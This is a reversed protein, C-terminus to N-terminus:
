YDEDEYGDLGCGFKLQLKMSTKNYQIELTKINATSSYLKKSKQFGGHGGGFGRGFFGLSGGGAGGQSWVNCEVTEIVNKAGVFQKIEEFSDMTRITVASTPKNDKTPQILKGAAAFMTRFSDPVLTDEVIVDTLGCYRHFHVAKSKGAVNEKSQLADQKSAAAPKPAFSLTTQM